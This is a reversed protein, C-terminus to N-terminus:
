REGLYTYPDTQTSDFIVGVIAYGQQMLQNQPGGPAAIFPRAMTDGQVRTGVLYLNGANDAQGTATIIYGASALGAAATAAQSTSATTVEVEYVTAPDASWGYALYTASGGNNSIATIVRGSAGEQMAAAQLNAAAVTNLTLEFGSQQASQLWAVGFLIDAPELDLSTIVSASSAPTAGNGFAPWAQNQMDPEFNDFLDSAYGALLAPSSSTVALPVESFAWACGVGTTNPTASCNGNSGVYFPMGISPSFSLAMRGLLFSSEGAGANGWGNVTSPADGQQFRIDVAM